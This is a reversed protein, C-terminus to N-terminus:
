SENLLAPGARRPDHPRRQRQHRRFRDACVDSDGDSEPQHGHQRDGQRVVGGPTYGTRLGLNDAPTAANQSVTTSWAILKQNNFLNYVDFKIWPRLDRFVPVNYHVSTDLMGYGAFTESGRERSSCTRPASRM